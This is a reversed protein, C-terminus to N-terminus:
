RVRLTTVRLCASLAEGLEHGAFRSVVDGRDRPHNRRRQACGRIRKSGHWCEWNLGVTGQSTSRFWPPRVIFSGAVWHDAVEDILTHQAHEDSTSVCLLAFVKIRQESSLPFSAWFHRLLENVAQSLGKLTAVTQAVKPSDLSGKAASRLM